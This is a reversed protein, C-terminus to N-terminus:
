YAIYAYLERATQFRDNPDKAVLKNLLKQFTRVEDPLQPIPASVHMEMLDSTNLAQYLTRGTLLQHFIVGLAYIDSRADLKQGLVQEPSMFNPTGVVFGVKTLGGKDDISKAGGFDVIALHTQDRFMINHPKLDRHIVGADHIAGLARAIQAFIKLGQVPPMGAKIRERLDGAGFYEMALYALGDDYNLDFIRTVYASRIKQILSFEQMFREVVRADKCLEPLLVKLVVQLEDSERRALYVKATGGEGILGEIRYGRIRPAEPLALPATEQPQSLLAYTDTKLQSTIAEENRREAVANALAEYLRRPTLQLRSVCDVVGAKMAAGLMADDDRGSTLMVIPALRGAAAASAALWAAPGDAEIRSDILIVDFNWKFGGVGAQPIGQKAPNWEKVALPSPRESGNRQAQRVADSLGERLYEGLVARFDANTDVILIRM